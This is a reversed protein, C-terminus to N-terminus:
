KKGKMSIINLLAYHTTDPLNKEVAEELEDVSLKKNFHLNVIEMERRHKILLVYIYKNKVSLMRLAM